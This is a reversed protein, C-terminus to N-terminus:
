LQLVDYYFMKAIAPLTIMMWQNKDLLGKIALANTSYRGAGLLVFYLWVIRIIRKIPREGKKYDGLVINEIILGIGQSLFFIYIGPEYILPLFTIPKSLDPTPYLRAMLLCHLVSSIWFAGFMQVLRNRSGPILKSLRVFPRKWIHHWRKSWLEGIGASLIARKSHSVLATKPLWNLRVILPFFTAEELAYSFTVAGGLAFSLACQVFLPQGWSSEGAKLDIRRIYWHCALHALQQIIAPLLPWEPQGFTSDPSELARQSWELARIKWPFLLATGPRMLTINDIAWLVRDLSFLPPHPLKKWRITNSNPSSKPEPSPSDDPVIWHFAPEPDWLNVISFDLARFLVLFAFSPFASDRMASGFSYDKNICIDYALMLQMPLLALRFYIAAPNKSPLSIASLFLLLLSAMIPVLAPKLSIKWSQEIM